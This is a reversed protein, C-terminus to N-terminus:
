EGRLTLRPDQGLQPTRMRQRRWQWLGAALALGVVSAAVILVLGGDGRALVELRATFRTGFGVVPDDALTAKEGFELRLWYYSVYAGAVLLLAGAIRGMHPVLRRLGRALGDRALAAAVSLATVVLAMGLGYAVFVLLSDGSAGAGLSAGLLALFLPLTCGLSAIGYGTGFLIMTTLGRERGLRVPSRVALAVRGGLLAVIGAAALVIGIALGAWPVADAVTGAGYVIPLGVLAFVGLFGATVLLGVLLGQAVRGPARPLQGENAGVYFSLFAPLLPFGCPNLAALAGAVLAISLPVGGTM